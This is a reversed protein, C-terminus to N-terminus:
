QPPHLQQRLHRPSVGQQRKFRLTFYFPNDFGVQRAIERIPEQTFELLQCARHLRQLELYRQPTEGTQSRFLHAFRSASLGCQRAIQTVTLPEAYNLCIYDIATRM